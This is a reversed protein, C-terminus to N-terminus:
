EEAPPVGKDPEWFAVNYIHPAFYTKPFLGPLEQLIGMATLQDIDCQATPYTVDLSKALSSTRVYQNSFLMDVIAPLRKRDAVRARYDERLRLLKTCREFTDKAQSLTARLCFEIWGTWDDQASVAFPRDIYEDKHRDFFASLYLWPRRHHCLDRIMLTMLLRGVRGNGDNFPHITEFQYHVLFARVLPPIAPDANKIFKELEELCGSVHEPPPPVFRHDAGIYVQQQRFAGPSRDYGRVGTLLVTHLQRILFLPADIVSAESSQTLARRYNYVERWANVRGEQRSTSSGADEAEPLEFLLLEKPTAYTGELSSSRLAERNEL